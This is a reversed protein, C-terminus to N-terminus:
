ATEPGDGNKYHITNRYSQLVKRLAEKQPEDVFAYVKLLENMHKNLKKLNRLCVRVSKKSRMIEEKDYLAAPVEGPLRGDADPRKTPDM